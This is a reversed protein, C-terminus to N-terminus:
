LHGVVSLWVEVFGHDVHKPATANIWMEQGTGQSTGNYATAPVNLQWFYGFMTPTLGIKSQHYMSLIEYMKKIIEAHFQV